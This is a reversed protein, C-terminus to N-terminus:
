KSRMKFWGTGQKEDPALKGVKKEGNLKRLASLVDYYNLEFPRLGKMATIRHMITVATPALLDSNELVFLIETELDFAPRPKAEGFPNLTFTSAPKFDVVEFGPLARELAEHALHTGIRGAAHDVVAQKAAKWDLKKEPHKSLTTAVHPTTGEPAWAPENTLAYWTKGIAQSCRVKGTLVLANLGMIAGETPLNRAALRQVLSESTVPGLTLEYEVDAISM